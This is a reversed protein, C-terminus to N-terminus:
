SSLSASGARHRLFVQHRIHVVQGLAPVDDDFHLTALDSKEIHAALVIRQRVNTEVLVAREATAGGTARNDGVGAGAPPAGPREVSLDDDAGPVRQFILDLGALTQSIGPTLQGGPLDLDVTRM